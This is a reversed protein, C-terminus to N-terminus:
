LIQYKLYPILTGELNDIANLDNGRIDFYKELMKAYVDDKSINLAESYSVFKLELLEADNKSATDLKYLPLGEQAGRLGDRNGSRSVLQVAGAESGGVRAGHQM